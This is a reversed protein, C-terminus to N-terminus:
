ADGEHFVENVGAVYEQADVAGVKLLAVAGVHYPLAYGVFAVEAVEAVQLLEPM